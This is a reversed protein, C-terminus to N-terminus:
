LIFILTRRGDRRPTKDSGGRGECINHGTDMRLPLFNVKVPVSNQSITFESKTKDKTKWSRAQILCPLFSSAPFLPLPPKRSSDKGSCSFPRNTFVPDAMEKKPPLRLPRPSSKLDLAKM